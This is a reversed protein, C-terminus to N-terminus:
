KIVAKNVYPRLTYVPDLRAGKVPVGAKLDEEIRKKDVVIEEVRKKYIDDIESEDIVLSFTGNTLKFKHDIGKLENIGNEKMALKLNDKIRDRANQCATKIKNYTEAQKKWYEAEFELKQMVFAYADVKEPLSLEIVNLKAELEPTLVGGSEVLENMLEAAFSVLERLSQKERVVIESM